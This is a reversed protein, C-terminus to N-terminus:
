DLVPVHVLHALFGVLIRATAGWVTEDELEFFHVGRDEHPFRWREEHHVGDALLESLAVDFVREVESPNPRLTPLPDLVGVFPAILFPGSVTHMTDLEGILEVADRPLGIEEEAERLAAARADVDLAPDIKGGPFAVEGSHNPMADPRHTLVVHAEGGREFVPVLVAADRTDAERPPGPRPEPLDACRERVDRLTLIRGTPTVDAWPSPAGPRADAPRPVRQRGAM